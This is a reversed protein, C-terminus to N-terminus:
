ILSKCIKIKDNWENIVEQPWLMYHCGYGKRRNNRSMRKAIKRNRKLLRQVGGINKYHLVYLTEESWIVNGTPRCVHAGHDYNIEKIHYPSFIINKSYNNFPWGTTIELLDEKPMENSYIDWGQTKFITCISDKTYLNLWAVFLDPSTIYLVEDCDCVIVWDAQSGKWINNKSDRLKDDDHEGPIGFSRVECGQKLAYEKSGDDSYHDMLIIKDCFKQYHKIVLPLIQMENWCYLYVEITM